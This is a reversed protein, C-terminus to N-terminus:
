IGPILVDLRNRLVLAVVENSGVVLAQGAVVLLLLDAAGLGPRGPLARGGLEIDIRYLNGLRGLVNPSQSESANLAVVEEVLAEELSISMNQLVNVLDAVNRSGNDLYFFSLSAM